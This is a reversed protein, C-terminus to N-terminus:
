SQVTCKRWLCSSVRGQRESVCDGLLAALAGERVTPDPMIDAEVFGVVGAPFARAVVYRQAFRKPGGHLVVHAHHEATVVTPDASGNDMEVSRCPYSQSRLSWACAGLTREVNRTPVVATVTFASATGPPEDCTTDSM